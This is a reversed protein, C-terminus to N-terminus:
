NFSINMPMFVLSFEAGVLWPVWPLYRFCGQAVCAVGRWRQGWPAGSCCCGLAMPIGPALCTKHATSVVALPTCFEYSPARFEVLQVNISLVSRFFIVVFM